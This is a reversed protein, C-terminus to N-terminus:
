PASGPSPPDSSDGARTSSLLARHLQQINVLYPSNAPLLESATELTLMSQKLEVLSLNYWLRGDDGAYRLGQKYARMAAELQSQRSYINGLNLWIDPLQPHSQALQRYQIEADNLRAERLALDASELQKRFDTAKAQQTPTGACAALLLVISLLGAIGQHSTM